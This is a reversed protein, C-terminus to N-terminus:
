RCQRSQRRAYLTVEERDHYLQGASVRMGADRLDRVTRQVTDLPRRMPLKLNFVTAGALGSVLWQQILRAIGQPRDVVDCLVWDVPHDPQFRFADVRQHEVGPDDVLEPALPGNDVACVKAGRQRMLWTWGGPAAGLDVASEGPRPREDEPILRHLAEELKMVSRSPAQRPMRLRPIGNRWLAGRSVGALCHSSDHFFLHLRQGHRQELVGHAELARQAAGAFRRCFRALPRGADSDAHELWPEGGALGAPLAAALAQARQGEPLDRAEAVLRIGSRSFILRPPEPLTDAPAEFIVFASRPHAKCYGHIGAARAAAVAESALTEEYGSRCHFLWGHREM